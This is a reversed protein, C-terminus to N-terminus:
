PAVTLKTQVALPQDKGDPGPALVPYGYAGYAAMTIVHDGPAMNQPVELVGSWIGDGATADGNAGNDFLDVEKGDVSATVTDVMRNPDSVRVTLLAKEGAKLTGPTAKPELLGLAPKPPAAEAPAAPASSPAAPGAVSHVELKMASEAPGGGVGMDRMHQLIPLMDDLTGSITVTVTVDGLAPRGSGIAMMGVVAILLIRKANM